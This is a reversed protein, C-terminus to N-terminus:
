AGGTAREDHERDPDPEDVREPSLDLVVGAQSLLTHALDHLVIGLQRAARKPDPGVGLNTTVDWRFTLEPGTVDDLEYTAIVGATGPDPAGLDGHEKRIHVIRLVPQDASM